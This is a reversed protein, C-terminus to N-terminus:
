RRATLKRITERISRAPRSNTEGQPTPDTPETTDAWPTTTPLPLCKVVMRGMWSTYPDDECYCYGIGEVLTPSGYPLIVGYGMCNRGNPCTPCCQGPETYGDVCLGLPCPLTYCLIQGSNCECRRCPNSSDIYGDPCGPTTLEVQPATMEVPTCHVGLERTYRDVEVCICDGNLPVYVTQGYPIVWGEFACNEGNPCTRCCDGPKKVSDFCRPTGCDGTICEYRGNTCYCHMCPDGTAPNNLGECNGPTSPPSLATTTPPSWSPTSPDTRPQTVPDPQPTTSPSGTPASCKAYIRYDDQYMDCYCEGYGEVFVIAGVPIITGGIACNKGNPCTPCCEGPETYGDACQDMFCDMHYCQKENYECTCKYCPDTNDVNEECMNYPTTMPPTVPVCEPRLGDYEDVVCYCQGVDKITVTQGSPIINGNMECNDGNPCVPCCYKPDSVSDVCRPRLCGPVACQYEGEYCWCHMCPHGEAPNVLDECNAPKPTTTPNNTTTATKKTPLRKTTTPKPTRPAKTTTTKTTPPAKTTTTKTTPPPKTAKTKTTQPAKTTTTKKTTPVKTTTTKTTPSAKKTTTTNSPLVATTAYVFLVSLMLFFAFTRVSTM